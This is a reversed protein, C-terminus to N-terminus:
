QTRRRRQEDQEYENYMRLWQENSMYHPGGRRESYRYEDEYPDTNRHKRKRIFRAIHAHIALSSGLIGSIAYLALAITKLSFTRVTV